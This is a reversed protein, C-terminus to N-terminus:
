HPIPTEATGCLDDERVAVVCLFWFHFRTTRSVRASTEPKNVWSAEANRLESSRRPLTWSSSIACGSVCLSSSLWWHQSQTRTGGGPCSSLFVKERRRRGGRRGHIYKSYKPLRGRCGLGSGDGCEGVGGDADDLERSWVLPVEQQMLMMM